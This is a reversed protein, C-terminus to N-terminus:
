GLLGPCCTCRNGWVNRHKGSGQFVERGLVPELRQQIQGARLNGDLVLRTLERLQALPHASTAAASPVPADQRASCFVASFVPTFGGERREPQAAGSAASLGEVADYDGGLYNYSLDLYRLQTLNGLPSISVDILNSHSLSLWTLSSLAALPALGQATLSKNGSLDLSQLTNRYLLVHNVIDSNMLGMDCVCLKQLPLVVQGAPLLRPCCPSVATSLVLQKSYVHGSSSTREDLGGDAAAGGTAAASSVFLHLGNHRGEPAKALQVNIGPAPQTDAAAQKVDGFGPVPSAPLGGWAGPPPKIAAAAAWPTSSSVVAASGAAAVAVWPNSSAQSLAAGTSPAAAVWLNDNRGIPPVPAVALAAAPLTAAKQAQQADQLEAPDDIGKSGDASAARAGKSIDRSVLVPPQMSSHSSAPHLSPIASAASHMSFPAPFAAQAAFNPNLTSLGGPLETPLPPQLSSCGVPGDFVAGFAFTGAFLRANPGFGVASAPAYQGTMLFPPQLPLGQFAGATPAIGFSGWAAAAASSQLQPGQSISPISTAAAAALCPGGEDAAAEHLAAPPAVAGEAATFAGGDLVNEGRAATAGKRVAHSPVPYVALSDGAASGHCEADQFNEAHAGVAAAGGGPMPYMGRFINKAYGSLDLHTLQTLQTLRGMEISSVPRRQYALGLHRLQKLGLVVGASSDNIAYSKSIRLYTLATLTSIPSIRVVDSNSIDLYQLKQLAGVPALKLQEPDSHHLSSGNLDLYTLATLSSLASLNSVRCFQLDLVKLNTLQSLAALPNHEPQSLPGGFAHSLNLYTLGTLASIASPSFQQHAVDLHQLQQLTSLHPLILPWQSNQHKCASLELSTLSTLTSLAPPAQGQVPHWEQISLHQLTPPLAPIPHGIQVSNILTLSTLRTLEVLTSTDESLHLNHLTLSQLQTFGSALHQLSDPHLPLPTLSIAGCLVLHHLQQSPKGVGEVLATVDTTDLQAVQLRLRWQLTDANQSLIRLCSHFTSNAGASVTLQLKKLLRQPHALWKALQDADRGTTLHLALAATSLASLENWTHNVLSPVTPNSQTPRPQILSFIRTLLEAPLSQLGTGQM